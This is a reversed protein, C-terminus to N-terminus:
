REGMPFNECVAGSIVGEDNEATTQDPDRYTTILVDSNRRRVPSTLGRSIIPFLPEFSRMLIM